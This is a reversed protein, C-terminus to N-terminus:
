VNARYFMIGNRDFSILSDTVFFSSGKPNFSFLCSGTYALCWRVTKLDADIVAQICSAALAPSSLRL